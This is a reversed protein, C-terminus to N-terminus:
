ISSASNDKVVAFSAANMFGWGIYAESRLLIQNAQKLDYSGGDPNGYEIIELPMEEAYGWRFADAFDGVYVRAANNNASVTANVDLTGAGIKSPYAGFAFDAYKREGSNQTLQAMATRAAPAMIVGNVEYEADEVKAIAEEINADIATSNHGLAIVNAGTNYHAIVYDLHNNGIIESSSGTAPNVGHLAMIDLGRAIKRQFGVAFEKLYELQREKSAKMFEDTIRSQYVVKVPRIQVPTATADGAPKAGSEGIVSIDSAFDFVFIDTGCFPIPERGSLKALSSHGTIKNFMEKALEAPFLTSKALASM